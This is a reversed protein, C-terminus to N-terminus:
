VESWGRQLYSKRIIGSAFFPYVLWSIGCTCLAAVFSIVAHSWIGKYAFYLAGFLFCWLGAGNVAETFGNQPNRFLM